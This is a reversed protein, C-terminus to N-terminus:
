APKRRIPFETFLKQAFIRPVGRQQGTLNKSPLTLALKLHIINLLKVPVEMKAEKFLQHSKM